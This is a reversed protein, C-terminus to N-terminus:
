IYLEMQQWIKRENRNKKCYMCISVIGELRKIREIYTHIYIMM